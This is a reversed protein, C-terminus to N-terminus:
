GRRPVAQLATLIARGFPSEPTPDEHEVRVTGDSAYHENGGHEGLAADDFFGELARLDFSELLELVDQRIGAFFVRGLRGTRILLNREEDSLLGQAHRVLLESFFRGEYTRGGIVERNLVRVVGRRAPRPRPEPMPGGANLAALMEELATRVDWVGLRATVGVYHGFIIRAVEPGEAVEGEGDPDALLIRTRQENRVETPAGYACYVAVTNALALKKQQLKAVDGCPVKQVRYRSRVELGMRHRDRLLVTRQASRQLRVMFDPRATAGDLFFFRSRAIRLRRELFLIAVGHALLEGSRKPHESSFAVPGGQRVDYWNGGPSEWYTSFEWRLMNLWDSVVQAPNPPQGHIALFRDGAAIADDLTFSFSNGPTLQARLAATLPLDADEEVPITITRKFEAAYNPITISFSHM